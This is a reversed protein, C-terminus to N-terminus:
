HTEVDLYQNLQRHTTVQGAHKAAAEAKAADLLSVLEENLHLMAALAESFIESHEPAVATAFCENLLERREGELDAVTDWEDKRARELMFQTMTLVNALLVCQGQREVLADTSATTM